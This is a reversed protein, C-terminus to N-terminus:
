WLVVSPLESSESPGSASVGFAGAPLIHTECRRELLFKGPRTSYACFPTLSFCTGTGVGGCPALRKEARQM